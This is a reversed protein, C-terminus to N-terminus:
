RKSVTNVNELGVSNPLRPAYTTFKVPVRFIPIPCHLLCARCTHGHSAWFAASPLCGGGEILKARFLIFFLLPPLSFVPSFFLLFFIGVFGRARCTPPPSPEHPRHLFFLLLITVFIRGKSLTQCFFGSRRSLSNGFVTGKPNRKEHPPTKRYAEKPSHKHTIM